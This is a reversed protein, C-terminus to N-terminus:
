IGTYFIVKEKKQLAERQAKIESKLTQVLHEKKEQQETMAKMQMILEKREKVHKGSVNTLDLVYKNEMLKFNQGIMNKENLTNTLKEVKSENIKKQQELDQNKIELDKLTSTLKSCDDKIRDITVAADTVLNQRLKENEEVKKEAIQL